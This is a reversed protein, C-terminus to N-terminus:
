TGLRDYSRLLVATNGSHYLRCTRTAPVRAGGPGCRRKDVRESCLHFGARVSCASLSQRTDQRMASVTSIVDDFNVVSVAIMLRFGSPRGGSAQRRVGAVM